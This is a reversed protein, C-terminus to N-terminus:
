TRKDHCRTALVEYVGLEGDYEGQFFPEAAQTSRGATLTGEAGQRVDDFGLRNLEGLLDAPEIIVGADPDVPLGREYNLTNVFVRAAILRPDYDSTANHNTRWLHRYWGVGNANVYLRGGPQLLRAFEALTERWGTLFLVGYCFIADFSADPFDTNGIASHKVHINARGLEHALAELFMLRGPTVDIATVTDNERALALSWQGYGCGADLVHNCGVFGYQAIRRRYSPIGKDFVRRVFGTDNSSWLPGYRRILAEVVDLERQPTRMSM